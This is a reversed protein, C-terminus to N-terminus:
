PFATVGANGSARCVNIPVGNGHLFILPFPTGMRERGVVGRGVPCRFRSRSSRKMTSHVRKKCMAKSYRKLKMVEIQEPSTTCTTEASNRPMQCIEVSVVCRATGRRYSLKKDKVITTCSHLRNSHFCSLSRICSTCPKGMLRAQM